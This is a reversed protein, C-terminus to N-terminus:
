MSYLDILIIMIIVRDTHRAPLEIHWAFSWDPSHIHYYQPKDFPDCGGM